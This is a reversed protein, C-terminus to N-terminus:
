IIRQVHTCYARLFVTRPFWSNKTPGRPHVACVCVYIYIDYGSHFICLARETRRPIHEFTRSYWRGGFTEFLKTASGACAHSVRLRRPTYLKARGEASYMEFVTRGGDILIDNSVYTRYHVFRDDARRWRHFTRCCCCCCRRARTNHTGCV